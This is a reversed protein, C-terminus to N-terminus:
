VPKVIAIGNRGSKMPCSPTVSTPSIEIHVPKLRPMVGPRVASSAGTHPRSPSRNPLFIMTSRDSTLKTTSNAAIAYTVRTHCTSAIRM